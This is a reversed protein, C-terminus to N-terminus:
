LVKAADRPIAAPAVFGRLGGAHIDFGQEKLTPVNPLGALRNASPVGLLRLKKTEVQSMVEGLNEATAQIHGGMVATVSETGSKFSVLNFRAGSLKELRHMMGHASGGPFTIGVSITKPKARAAALLDKLSRYPSDESVSLSNLDMGIAGLATFKDVGVDLGTRIPVSILSIAAQIFIYPDGRKGAVYTQGVAGGGGARNQVIIPQPLLKEKAVIEAVTRAVLDSGGGAGTPSVLEIHRTPYPQANVTAAAAAILIPALLGFRFEM